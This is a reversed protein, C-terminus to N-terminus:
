MEFERKGEADLDLTGVSRGDRRRDADCFLCEAKLLDGDHM